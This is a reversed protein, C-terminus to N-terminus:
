RRHGAPPSATIDSPYRTVGTQPGRSGPRPGEHGHDSPGKDAGRETEGGIAQFFVVRVDMARCPSREDPVLASSM